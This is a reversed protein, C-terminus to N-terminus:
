QSKGSYTALQAPAMISRAPRMSVHSGPRGDPPNWCPRARIGEVGLYVSESRFHM